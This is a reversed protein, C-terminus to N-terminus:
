TLAKVKMLVTQHPRYSMSHSLSCSDMEERGEKAATTGPGSCTVMLSILWHNQLWSRGRWGEGWLMGPPERTCARASLYQKARRQAPRWYWGTKGQSLKNEETSIVGGPRTYDAPSWLWAKRRTPCGPPSLTLATGLALQEALFGDRRQAGREEGADETGTLRTM